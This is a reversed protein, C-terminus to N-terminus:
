NRKLIASKLKEFPILINYSFKKAKYEQKDVFEFNSDFKYTAGITTIGLNKQSHKNKKKRLFLNQKIM